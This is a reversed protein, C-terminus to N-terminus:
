RLNGTSRPRLTWSVAAAGKVDAFPLVQTAYVGAIGKAPDIWYYSNALGAWALSGASRGTPAEETNIMFTLGWTKDMGPFFEVDNTLPPMASTMRQVRLPGMQNVSMAEVTEPKLVRGHEGQGRNLIMRTFRAYDGVTGYLGGGGMEMEPDQPIELDLAEFSGDEGRQHIRALRGRMGEDIRFATSTMGLPAFIEEQLYAGLTKGTVSEVMQGAWDINIGYDWATGPDFM